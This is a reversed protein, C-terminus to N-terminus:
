FAVTGGSRHTSWLESRAICGASFGVSGWRLWRLRIRSRRLQMGCGSKELSAASDSVAGAASDRAQRYLEQAAGAAQNAVGDVQSRTDGTVRGFGEEVKGGINRATGTVRNEDM